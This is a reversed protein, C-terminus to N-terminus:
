FPSNEDWPLPDFYGGPEFDEIHLGEIVIDNIAEEIERETM